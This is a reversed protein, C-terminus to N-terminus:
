SLLPASLFQYCLNQDLLVISIMVGFEDCKLTFFLVWLNPILAKGHVVSDRHLSRTQVIRESARYDSSHLSWIALFSTGTKGGCYGWDRDLATDPVM